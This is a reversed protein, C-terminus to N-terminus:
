GGAVCGLEDLLALTDAAVTSWAYREQLAKSAVGGQAVAEPTLGNFLASVAVVFLGFRLPSIPIPAAGAALPRSARLVLAIWVLVLGLSWPNRTTSLIVVIAGVWSLWAVAHIM